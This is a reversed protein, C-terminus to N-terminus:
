KNRKITEWMDRLLRLDEESSKPLDKYWKQLSPNKAFAQFEEEDKDIQSPTPSDSRGLLYDTSCDLVNSLKLIEEDKAPRDGSEIRNMVSPNLGVRSALERQSWSKQERLSIIKKGIDM